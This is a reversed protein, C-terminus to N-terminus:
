YVRKADHLNLSFRTQSLRNDLMENSCCTTKLRLKNNPFIHVKQRMATKYYDQIVNTLILTM